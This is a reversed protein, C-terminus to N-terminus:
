KKKGYNAIVSDAQGMMVCINKLIDIQNEFRNKKKVLIERLLDVGDLVDMASSIFYKEKKPCYKSEIGADFIKLYVRITSHKGLAFPKDSYFIIGNIDNWKEEKPLSKNYVCHIGIKSIHKEIHDSLESFQTISVEKLKIEHTVGDQEFFITNCVDETIVYDRFELKKIVKSIKEYSKEYNSKLNNPPIKMPRVINDLIYRWEKATSSYGYGSRSMWSFWGFTWRRVNQLFTTNTGEYFGIEKVIKLEYLEIAMLYYDLVDGIRSHDDTMCNNMIKTAEKLYFDIKDFIPATSFFGSDLYYNCDYDSSENKQIFTDIHGIKIGLSKCKRSSVYRTAILSKMSNLGKFIEDMHLAEEADKALKDLESFINISIEFLKVKNESFSNIANTKVKLFDYCNQIEALTNSFRSNLQRVKNQHNESTNPEKSKKTSQSSGM